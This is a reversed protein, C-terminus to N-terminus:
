YKNKFGMGNGLFIEPLMPINLILLCNLLSLILIFPSIFNDNETVWKNGHITYCLDTGEPM